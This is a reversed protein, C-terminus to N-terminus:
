VLWNEKAKKRCVCRFVYFPAMRFSVLPSSCFLYVLYVFFSFFILPPPSFPLPVLPFASIFTDTYLCVEKSHCKIFVICQLMFLLLAKALHMQIEAVVSRTDQLRLLMQDSEMSIPMSVM